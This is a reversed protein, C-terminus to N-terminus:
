SPTEIEILTAYFTLSDKGISMFDPIRTEWSPLRPQSIVASLMAGHYAQPGLLMCPHREFFAQCFPESNSELVQSFENLVISRYQEWDMLGPASSEERYLTRTMATRKILTAIQEFHPAFFGM